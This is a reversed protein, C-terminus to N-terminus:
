GEPEMEDGGTGDRHIHWKLIRANRARRRTTPGRVIERVFDKADQYYPALMNFAQQATVGDAVEVMVTMELEVEWRAPSGSVDFHWETGVLSAAAPPPAASVRDTLASDAQARYGSVSERVEVETTSSPTEMILIIELPVEYEIM